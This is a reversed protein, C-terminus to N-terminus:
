RTCSCIYMYMYVRVIDNACTFYVHVHVLPAHACQQVISYPLHLREILVSKLGFLTDKNTLHGGQFSSVKIFLVGQFSSVEIFLVGQFSSVEM